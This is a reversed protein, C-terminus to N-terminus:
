RLWRLLPPKVNTEAQSDAREDLASAAADTQHMRGGTVSGVVEVLRQGRNQQGDWAAPHGAMFLDGTEQGVAGEITTFGAAAARDSASSGSDRSSVLPTLPSM